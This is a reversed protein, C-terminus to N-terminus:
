FYFRRQGADKAQKSIQIRGGIAPSNAADRPRGAHGSCDTTASLVRCRGNIQNVSNEISEILQIRDFLRIPDNKSFRVM